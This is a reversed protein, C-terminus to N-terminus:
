KFFFTVVWGGDQRIRCNQADGNEVSSYGESDGGGRKDNQRLQDPISLRM